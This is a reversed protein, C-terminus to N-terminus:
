TPAIVCLAGQRPVEICSNLVPDFSAPPARLQDFASSQLRQRRKHPLARPLFGVVSYYRNLVGKSRVIIVRM